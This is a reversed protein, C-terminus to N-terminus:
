SAGVLGRTRRLVAAAGDYCVGFRINAVDGVYESRGSQVCRRLADGLWDCLPSYFFFIPQKKKRTQTPPGNRKLVCVCVCVCVCVDTDAFAYEEVSIWAGINEETEREREREGEREREREGRVAGSTKM